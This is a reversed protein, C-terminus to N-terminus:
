SSPLLFDSTCGAYLLDKRKWVFYAIGVPYTVYALTMLADSSVTLWLLGPSWALCYGHPMFGKIGFLDVLGQM